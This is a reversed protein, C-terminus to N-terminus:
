NIIVIRGDLKFERNIVQLINRAEDESAFDGVYVVRFLTGGVLKEEIITKFGSDEFDKKLNVANEENSFAGAQIRFRSSETHVPKVKQETIKVEIGQQKDAFVDESDPIVRDAIKIYPSEPYENKLRELYTKSKQYSGVAYYYSYVRYLSADAYKSQPHNLLIEEFIKVAEVANEELIGTLFKLSPSGPNKKTLAPLEILVEDRAGSEIQKLYPVIDVDQPYVFGPSIFFLISFFFVIIKM